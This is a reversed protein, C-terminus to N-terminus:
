CYFIQCNINWKGPKDTIPFLLVALVYDLDEPILGGKEMARRLAFQQMASEGKEWSKQGFYADQNLEDFYGALPGQAEQKGGINAYSLVSVPSGLRVTQRGLHKSTM